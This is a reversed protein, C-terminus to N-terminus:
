WEPLISAFIKINGTGVAFAQLEVLYQLYQNTM